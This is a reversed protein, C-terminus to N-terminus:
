QTPKASFYLPWLYAKSLLLAAMLSDPSLLLAAMLNAPSLLLAAMLNAPSLLLAAILSFRKGTGRMIHSRYSY